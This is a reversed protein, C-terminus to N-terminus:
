ATQQNIIPERDPTSSTPVTTLSMEQQNPDERVLRGDDTAYFLTNPKRPLAPKIKIEDLVSMAAADGSAPSITLTLTIVSPKLHERTACVATQMAATLETLMAGKRQTRLVSEIANLIPTETKM